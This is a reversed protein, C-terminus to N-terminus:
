EPDRPSPSTYLLCTMGYVISHSGTSNNGVIGGMTARNGSAPDPGFQLGMPKLHTNLSDLVLGPQVRAWKEETNVELVKNMHRSTDIVLAKNVCQGALSSGAGRMLVPVKHQWAVEIAAQIHEAHQPFMVGYPKVKYISADTSYLTRSYADTHIESDVQQRLDAWFDTLKEASIEHM